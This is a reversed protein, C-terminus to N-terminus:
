VDDFPKNAKFSNGGFPFKHSKNILCADCHFSGNSMKNSDLGLNKLLLKLVNISPHGLKHHWSLLSETSMTTSNIQLLCRLSHIVAYYIDDINEGRMLHAGTRLDKVVFHFPFFEISVKNTKSLKAVSVINNRLQSVFLINDLNLPYSSTPLTSHGTHTISLRKGNGLMIENPGGYESLTHVASRESATHHSAGSDFMWPQASTTNIMPTTSSPMSITINNEKLFRALKRCEKTDHGPINCYQCFSSNQNGCPSFHNGSQQGPSRHSKPGQYSFRNIGRTDQSLRSKSMSSSRQTNNVTAIVPAAQTDKLSREHDVLEDFLNPFTISTDQAKLAASISVFDDGLQGLIYVTLDEDDVKPNNALRSKLSIIRSWSHSAFSASLRNFAQYSTDVSAVIHQITDSCSGLLAGLLIQDQSLWLNYKSNPKTADAPLTKPPETQKRRHHHHHHNNHKYIHM